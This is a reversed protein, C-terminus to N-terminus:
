AGLGDPRTDAAASPRRLALQEAERDAVAVEDGSPHFGAAAGVGATARRAELACHRAPHKCAGQPLVHTDPRLQAAKVSTVAM